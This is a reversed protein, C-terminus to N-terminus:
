NINPIDKKQAKHLQFMRAREYEMFNDYVGITEIALQVGNPEKFWTSVDYHLFILNKGPLVTFHRANECFDKIHRNEFLVKETHDAVKHHEILLKHLKGMVEPDNTFMERTFETM